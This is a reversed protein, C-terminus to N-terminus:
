PLYAIDKYDNKCSHNIRIKLNEHLFKKKQIKLKRKSRGYNDGCTSEWKTQLM